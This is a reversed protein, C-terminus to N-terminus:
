WPPNNFTDTDSPLTTGYQNVLVWGSQNEFGDWFTHHVDNIYGDDDM